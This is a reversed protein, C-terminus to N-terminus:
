PLPTKLCERLREKEANSKGMRFCTQELTYRYGEDHRWQTVALLADRSLSMRKQNEESLWKQVLENELKEEAKRKARAEKTHVIHQTHRVAPAETNRVRRILHEFSGYTGGTWRRVHGM